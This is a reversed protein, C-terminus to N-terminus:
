TGRRGGGLVSCVFHYWPVLITRHYWQNSFTNRCSSIRGLRSITYSDTRQHAGTDRSLEMDQTDHRAARRRGVGAGSYPSGDVQRYSKFRLRSVLVTRDLARPDDGGLVRDGLATCNRLRTAKNTLPAHTSNRNVEGSGIFTDGCERHHRVIKGNAFVIKFM